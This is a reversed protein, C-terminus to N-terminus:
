SDDAVGPKFANHHLRRPFNRTSKMEVKAIVKDEEINDYIKCCNNKYWFGYGNEVLQEVARYIKLFISKGLSMHIKSLGSANPYRAVGLKKKETDSMGVENDPENFGMDISTWLGEANLFTRMKIYCYEYDKGDFFQIMSSSSGAVAHSM